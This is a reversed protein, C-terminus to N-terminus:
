RRLATSVYTSTACWKARCTRGNKTNRATCDEFINSNRATDTIRAAGAKRGQSLVMNIKGAPVEQEYDWYTRQSVSVGIPPRSFASATALASSHLLCLLSSVNFVLESVRKVMLAQAALAMSAEPAEAAM